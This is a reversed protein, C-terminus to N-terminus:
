LFLDRIFSNKPKNRDVMVIVPQGSFLAQTQKVKHIATGAMYKQNQYTFIFDVRGRDRFFFVNSIVGQVEIGDSFTANITQIRWTLVILAAITTIGFAIPLALDTFTIQKLILLVLYLGWAIPPYIVGAFALYDVTIIKLISPQRNM